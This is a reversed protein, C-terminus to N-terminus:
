RVHVGPIVSDKHSEVRSRHTDSRRVGDEQLIGTDGFNELEVRVQRKTTDGTKDEDVFDFRRIPDLDTLKKDFSEFKAVVKKGHKGNKTITKREVDVVDDDGDDDYDSPRAVDEPVKHSTVFEERPFVFPIIKLFFLSLFKFSKFPSLNVKTRCLKAEPQMM